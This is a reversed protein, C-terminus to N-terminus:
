SFISNPEDKPLFYLDYGKLIDQLKKSLDLANYNCIVADTYFDYNLDPYNITYYTKLIFDVEILKKKLDDILILVENHPEM